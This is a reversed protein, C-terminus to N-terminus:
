RCVLSLHTSVYCRNGNAYTWNVAYRGYGAVSTSARLYPRLSPTSATWLCNIVPSYCQGPNRIRALVLGCQLATFTGYPQKYFLFSEQFRSWTSKVFYPSRFYCTERGKSSLSNYNRLNMLSPRNPHLRWIIQHHVSFTLVMSWLYKATNRLLKRHFIHSLPFNTQFLSQLVQRLLWNWYLKFFLVLNSYISDIQM